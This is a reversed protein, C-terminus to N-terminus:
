VCGSLDRRTMTSESDWALAISVRIPFWKRHGRISLEVSTGNENGTFDAWVTPRITRRAKELQNCVFMIDSMHEANGNIRTVTAFTWYINANLPCSRGSLTYM